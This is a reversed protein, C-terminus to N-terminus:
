CNKIVILSEATINKMLGDVTKMRSGNNHKM